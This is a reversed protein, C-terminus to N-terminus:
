SKNLKKIYGGDWLKVGLKKADSIAQPTFTNNTMVVAIDRNYIGKGSYVEQIAANGVPSSYYKCQIVYTISDKEALIDVGHDGSGSTTTVNAYGNAKLLEACYKEFDEGTVVNEISGNASYDGGKALSGITVKVGDEQALVTRRIIEKVNKLDFPYKKQIARDSVIKECMAQLDEWDIIIMDDDKCAKFILKLEDAERPSAGIAKAFDNADPYVFTVGQEKMKLYDYMNDPMPAYVEDTQQNGQAPQKNSQVYANEKTENPTKKHFLSGFIGGRGSGSDNKQGSQLNKGAAAMKAARARAAAEKEENRNM